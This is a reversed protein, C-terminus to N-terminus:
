RVTEKLWESLGGRPKLIHSQNNSFSIKPYTYMKEKIKYKHLIFSGDTDILGRICGKIYDQKSLIWDPVGVQLHVKNGICLGKQKLYEVLNMGSISVKLM